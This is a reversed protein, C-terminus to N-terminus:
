AYTILYYSYGVVSSGVGTAVKGVGETVGTAVTAVGGTVAGTVEKGSRVAADFYPQPSPIYSSLPSADKAPVPPPVPETAPPTLGIAHLDATELFSIVADMNTIGYSYYDVVKEEYRYRKIYRLNSILRPPNARVVIYILLPLITDAGANLKRLVGALSKRKDMTDTGEPSVEVRHGQLSDSVLQHVCTIVDVKDRPSKVQDMKLLEKSCDYVLKELFPKDENDIEVGLHSVELNLM